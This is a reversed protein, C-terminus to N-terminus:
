GDKDEDLLVDADTQSIESDKGSRSECVMCWWSALFKLYVGDVEGVIDECSVNASPSREKVSFGAGVSRLLLVVGAMLLAGVISFTESSESGSFFVGLSVPLSPGVRVM